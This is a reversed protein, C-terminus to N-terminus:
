LAPQIEERSEKQQKEGYVRERDARVGVLFLTGYAPGQRLVFPENKLRIDHCWELIEQM